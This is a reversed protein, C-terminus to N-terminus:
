TDVDLKVFHALSSIEGSSPSGAHSASVPGVKGAMVARPPPGAAMIIGCGISFETEVWGPLGPGGPELQETRYLPTPAGSGGVMVLLVLVVLLQRGTPLSAAARILLPSLRAPRGRRAAKRNQASFLLVM